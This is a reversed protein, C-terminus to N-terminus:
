HQGRKTGVNIYRKNINNVVSKLVINFIRKKLKFLCGERIEVVVLIDIHEHEKFCGDFFRTPEMKLM